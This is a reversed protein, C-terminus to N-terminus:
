ALDRQTASRTQVVVPNQDLSTPPSSCTLWSFGSSFQSRVRTSIQLWHATSSKYNTTQGVPVVACTPMLRYPTLLLPEWWRCLSPAKWRPLRSWNWRSVSSLRPSIQFIRTHCSLVPILNSCFVFFRYYKLLCFIGSITKFRSFYRLSVPLFWTM